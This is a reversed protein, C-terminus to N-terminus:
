SCKAATKALSSRGSNSVSVVRGFFASRCMTLAGTSSSFGTPLFSVWGKPVFESTEQLTLGSSAAGSRRLMHSADGDSGDVLGAVGDDVFVLRGLTWDKGGACTAGDSSACVTVRAGRKVAESRALALDGILSNTEATLSNNILMDRFSPAALAALIAAIMITLMLEILTFGSKRNM